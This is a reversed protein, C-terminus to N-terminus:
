GEEAARVAQHVREALRNCIKCLCVDRDGRRISGADKESLRLMRGKHLRRIASDGGIGREAFSMRLM